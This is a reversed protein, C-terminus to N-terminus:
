RGALHALVQKWYQFLISSGHDAFTRLDFELDELEDLLDQLPSLNDGEGHWVSVCASIAKLDVATPNTLCRIEGAIGSGSVVLSELSAKVMHEVISPNAAFFTKDADVSSYFRLLLARNTRENARSRLINFFTSLLWPQKSLHQRLSTISSGDTHNYGAPGRGSVLMLHKVRHKLRAATALAHAAGALFGLLSVETIGLANMLDEVDASITDFSFQDAADSFGTGPREFAILTLGLQTALADTGPLLRSCGAAEHFYIITQAGTGYRRYALRRRANSRSIIVFEHQPYQETSVLGPPPDPPAAIVSLIVQLQTMMLILDGQRNIKTKDFVAQLQNRVTNPSINLTQAIQKLQLGSNLQQCVESEAPTLGFSTQLVRGAQMSTANPAILFGAQVNKDQLNFAAPLDDTAVMYGYRSTMGTSHLSVLAIRQKGATVGTLAQEFETASTADFFALRDKEISCYKNLSNSKKSAQLLRGQKDLLFYHCGVNNNQQDTQGRLQWALTEAQSLTTLLATPDLAEIKQGDRNLAQAFAEWATPDLAYSILADIFGAPLSTNSDTKLL